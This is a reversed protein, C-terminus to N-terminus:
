WPLEELTEESMGKASERPSSKQTKSPSPSGGHRRRAGDWFCGDGRDGLRLGGAWKRAHGTTCVAVRTSTNLEDQPLLMCRLSSLCSGPGVGEGGLAGGRTRSAECHLEESPASLFTTCFMM